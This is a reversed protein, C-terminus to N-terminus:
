NPLFVAPPGVQFYFKMDPAAARYILCTTNQTTIGVASATNNRPYQLPDPVSTNEVLAVKATASYPLHVCLPQLAAHTSMVSPLNTAPIMRIFANSASEMKYQPISSGINIAGAVALINDFTYKANTPAFIPLAMAIYIYGGRRFRFMQNYWDYYPFTQPENTTIEYSAGVLFTSSSAYTNGYVINRDTPVLSRLVSEKFVNGPGLGGVPSITAFASALTAEQIASPTEVVDGFVLPVINDANGSATSRSTTAVQAIGGFVATTPTSLNFTIPASMSYLKFDKGASVWLNLYIPPIPTEKYTLENLVRFFLVGNGSDTTVLQRDVPLVPFPSNWPIEFEIESDCQLDIIHSTMEYTPDVGMTSPVNVNQPNYVIQLRGSHFNSAVIQLKYKLSGSWYRCPWSTYRLPTMYYMTGNTYSLATGSCPHVPIQFIVKEEVDVSTMEFQALLGPRSAIETLSTPCLYDVMESDTQSTGPENGIALTVPSLDTSNALTHTNLCIQATGGDVPYSTYTVNRLNPIARSHFPQATTVPAGSGYGCLTVDYMNGFVTVDISPTVAGVKLPNLVYIFLKAQSVPNAPSRALWYYNYPYVFPVDLQVVENMGASVIVHPFGSVSVLNDTRTYLSEGSIPRNPCPSWMAILKGYHFSTGNLRITIKFSARLYEFRSLKEMIARFGYFADPLAIESVLEGTQQSSAWKFSTLPYVRSVYDTLTPADFAVNKTRIATDDNDEIVIPAVDTFRVSQQTDDGQLSEVTNQAV